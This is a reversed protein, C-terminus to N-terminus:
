DFEPQMDFIRWGVIDDPYRYATRDFGSDRIFVATQNALDFGNVLVFHHGACVRHCSM